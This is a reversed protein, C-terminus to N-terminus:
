FTIVGSGRPGHFKFAMVTVGEIEVKFEFRKIHDSVGGAVAALDEESLEEGSAVSLSTRLEEVSPLRHRTM